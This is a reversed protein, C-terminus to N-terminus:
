QTLRWNISCILHIGLMLLVTNRLIFRDELHWLLEGGNDLRQCYMGLFLFDFLNGSHEWVYCYWGVHHAVLNCLQAIFMRKQPHLFFSIYIFMLIPLDTPSFTM